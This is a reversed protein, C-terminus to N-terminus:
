KKEVLTALYQLREQPNDYGFVATAIAVQQVGLPLLQELNQEHIGGDLAISCLAKKKTIEQNLLALREFTSPIFQQGSAGPNVSMVLLQDVLNIFPFLEKIDTKPSIAIGALWNNEKIHSITDIKNECSEIHFTVISKAPLVLKSIISKPNDAMIHVWIQRQTATAIANAFQHGWTLNPVFHNDMIDLHYGACYPDLGKIVSALNLLDANILSPYLAIM